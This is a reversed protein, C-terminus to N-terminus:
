LVSNESLYWGEKMFKQMFKWIEPYLPYFVEHLDIHFEYFWQETKQKLQNKHKNQHARGSHGDEGEEELLIDILDLFEGLLELM